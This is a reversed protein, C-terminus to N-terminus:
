RQCVDDRFQGRRCGNRCIFRLHEGSRDRRTPAKADDDDALVSWTRSLDTACEHDVGYVTFAGEMTSM